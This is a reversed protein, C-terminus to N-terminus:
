SVHRFNVSMDEYSIQEISNVPGIIEKNQETAGSMHQLQVEWYFMGVEERIIM